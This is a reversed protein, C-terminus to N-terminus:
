FGLTGMDPLYVTIAAVVIQFFLAHLALFSRRAKVLAREVKVRVRHELEDSHVQRLSNLELDVDVGDLYQGLVRAFKSVEPVGKYRERLAISGGLDGHIEFLGKASLVFQKYKETKVLPLYTELVGGVPGMSGAVLLYHIYLYMDPFNETIAANETNVEGRLIAKVIYGYLFTLGGLLIAGVWINMLFTGILFGIIGVKFGDYIITVSFEEPKMITRSSKRTILESTSVNMNYVRQMWYEDKEVDRVGKAFISKAKIGALGRILNEKLERNRTRKLDRQIAVEVAGLKRKVRAYHAQGSVQSIAWLTFLVIAFMLGARVYPITYFAYILTNNMRAFQQDLGFGIGQAFDLIQTNAPSLSPTQQASLVVVPLQM